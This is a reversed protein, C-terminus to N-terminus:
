IDLFCYFCHGVGVVLKQTPQIPNLSFLLITSRIDPQRFFWQESHFVVLQITGLSLQEKYPILTLIYFVM